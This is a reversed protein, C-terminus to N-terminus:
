RLSTSIPPVRDTDNGFRYRQYVYARPHSLSQQSHTHTHTHTSRCVTMAAASWCHRWWAHLPSSKHRIIIYEDGFCDALNSSFENAFKLTVTFFQIVKGQIRHLVSMRAEDSFYCCAVVELPSCFYRASWESLRCLACFDIYIFYETDLCLSFCM